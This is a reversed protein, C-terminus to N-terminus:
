LFLYIRSVIKEQKGVKTFKNPAWSELSRLLQKDIGQALATDAAPTNNAPPANTGQSTTPANILPATLAQNSASM